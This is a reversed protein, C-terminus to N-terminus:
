VGAEEASKVEEGLLMENHPQGAPIMPFCNALNVVQVNMFVPGDHAMMERIADDLEDPRRVDIGKWHYAEALALFDPQAEVYSESLRNGHLLEQWQRVMGLYNNNLLFVKVPLDHQIATSLEQINM